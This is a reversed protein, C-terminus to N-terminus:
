FFFKKNEDFHWAYQAHQFVAISLVYMCKQLKIMCRDSKAQETPIYEHEYVIGDPNYTSQVRYHPGNSSGQPSNGSFTTVQSWM